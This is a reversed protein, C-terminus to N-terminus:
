TNSEIFPSLLSKSQQTQNEETIHLDQNFKPKELQITLRLSHHTSNFTEFKKNSCQSTSNMEANTHEISTPTTEPTKCRQSRDIVCPANKNKGRVLPKM